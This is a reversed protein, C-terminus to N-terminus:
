PARWLVNSGKVIQLSRDPAVVVMAGATATNTCWVGAGSSADFVCFNGDAGMRAVSRAGAALANSCWVGGGDPLNRLCLNGDSQMVLVAATGRISQDISGILTQGPGLTPGYLSLDFGPASAGDVGAAGAVSTCNNLGGTRASGGAGPSGPVGPYAAAYAPMTAGNAVTIALAPGGNGGAGGSGAGGAGGNGGAGGFGPGYVNEISSCVGSVRGGGPVPAGAGGPGGIGGQGGVGGAGGRAAIFVSRDDVSGIAGSVAMAISAGGQGGGQGGQGGCGGGGGGGGPAGGLATVDRYDNSFAAAAGGFQGGGGGAGSGGTGGTGGNEPQWVGAAPASGAIWPSALGAVSSCAGPAGGGGPGGDTPQQISGRNRCPCGNLGAYGGAPGQGQASGSGDTAATYTVNCDCEGPVCNSVSFLMTGGNGGHEGPAGCTAGGTSVNANGGSGAVGADSGRAGVAGVGGVLRMRWLSLGPSDKVQLAVSSAGATSGSADGARLVLGQLRTASTITTASVTPRDAPGNVISRLGRDAEGEFLCSGYVDVGDRLAITAPPTYLGHRVLVACGTVGCQSLGSEISPCADAAAMSTGCGASAPRDAADDRVYVMQAAVPPATAGLAPCVPEEEAAPDPAEPLTPLPRDAADDSGSCGWLAPAGMVCVLLALRAAWGRAGARRRAPLRGVGSHGDM